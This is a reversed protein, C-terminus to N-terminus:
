GEILKACRGILLQAATVVCDFRSCIAGFQAGLKLVQGAAEAGLPQPQARGRLLRPRRREAHQRRDDAAALSRGLRQAVGPHDLHLVLDGAENARPEDLLVPHARIAHALVEHQELPRGAAARQTQLECDIARPGGGGPLADRQHEVARPALQSVAPQEDAVGVPSCKRRM